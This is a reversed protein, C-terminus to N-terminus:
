HSAVRCREPLMLVFFALSRSRELIAYRLLQTYCLHTGNPGDLEFEDLALPISNCGRNQQQEFTTSSLSAPSASLSQLTKIEQRLSDPDREAIGVKVAVYQDAHTDRALWVTSYGGHGLKHVIRYRKHLMDGIMIPHYGGPAYKELSEAGDIWNYKISDSKDLSMM